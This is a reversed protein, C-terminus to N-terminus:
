LADRPIVELEVGAELLLGESLKFSSAWRATQEDTPEVTVVRKIGAQIVIASCRSCPMFPWTYLTYGILPERAHVIANIEGHVILEYKLARDELRSDDEVGRPFGNFGLSAISRDPRVIVAGVKTSPDKSWSGVERAMRLFRVDWKDAVRGSSGATYLGAVFAEANM